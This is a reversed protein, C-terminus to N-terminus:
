VIYLAVFHFVFVQALSVYPHLCNSKICGVMTAGGCLMGLVALFSEMSCHWSSGHGNSPM